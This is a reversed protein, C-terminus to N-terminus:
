RKKRRERWEVFLMGIWMATLLIVLGVVMGIVGWYMIRPDSDITPSVDPPPTQVLPTTCAKM